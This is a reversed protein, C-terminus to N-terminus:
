YIKPDIQEYVDDEKEQLYVMMGKRLLPIYKKSARMKICGNKERVHVICFRPNPCVNRIVGRYTRAEAIKLPINDDLIKQGLEDVWTNRGKGTIHKEDLLKFALEKAEDFPLEYDEAIKTLRQKAM